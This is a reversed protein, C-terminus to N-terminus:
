QPIGVRREGSRLQQIVVAVVLLTGKAVNQWFPNVGLLTMGNILVGLLLVALLTSIISGKGGKLATGGLAAATIAELELGESGSIPQGSGTRATILVGAIGAVMGALAFIALIYRNINIGALRAAADNGGLAYIKRGIDTYKLMVHLLGAVLLLVWILTPIGLISGRALFIFIPDSGTYGQARGNSILQAIGKFAALTALTAIVPNVRGYVIIAGNVLGCLLGILVAGALGLVATSGTATFIMASAVSALGAVSGVSIDLGGAIIVVTQVVALLGSIAVATGIVILNSGRFFDANQSGIVLIVLALAILLSVNTVGVAELVRHLPSPRRASPTTADAAATSTQAPLPARTGTM